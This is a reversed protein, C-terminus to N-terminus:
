MRADLQRIEDEGRQRSTEVGLEDGRVHLVERHELTELRRVSSWRRTPAVVHAILGLRDARLPCRPCSACGCPKWREHAGRVASCRRVIRRAESDLEGGLCKETQIVVETLHAATQHLRMRVPMELKGWLSPRELAADTLHALREDTLRRAKGLLELVRAIGGTRSDGFEGDPPSLRDCPLRDDPIALPEENGRGAAYEVQAAYRLEVAIAHRLLDRLSWEGDRANELLSDDRGVLLGVLDGFAAQALDQIRAAETRHAPQPGAAPAQEHRLLDYLVFQGRATRGDGVPMARALDGDSWLGIRGLADLPPPM